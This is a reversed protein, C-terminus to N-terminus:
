KQRPELKKICVTYPLDKYMSQINNQVQIIVILLLLSPVATDAIFM